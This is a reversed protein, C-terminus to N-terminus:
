PAPKPSLVLKALMRRDTESMDPYAPMAISGWAGSGGGAIKNMLYTEAEPNGNFRAAVDNWAPGLLKKDIAHCAFCGTKKAFQMAEEKSVPAAAPAVAEGAPQQPATQQVAVATPPAAAAPAAPQAPTEPQCGYMAFLLSTLLINQKRM